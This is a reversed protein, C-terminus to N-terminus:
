CGQFICLLIHTSIYYIKRLVFNYTTLSMNYRTVGGFGREVIFATVKDKTEGTNPDKVPTKVLVFHLLIIM